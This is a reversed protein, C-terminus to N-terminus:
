INTFLVKTYLLKYKFLKEFEKCLFGKKIEIFSLIKNQYIQLHFKLKNIGLMPNIFFIKDEISM